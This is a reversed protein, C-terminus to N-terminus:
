LKTAPYFIRDQVFALDFVLKARLLIGEIDIMENSIKYLTYEDIFSLTIRTQTFVFREKNSRRLMRHSAM